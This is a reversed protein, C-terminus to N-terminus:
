RAERVSEFKVPQVYAPSLGFNAIAAEAVISGPPGDHRFRATGTQNRPLGLALSNVGVTQGSPVTVSTSSVQAGSPSLFTLSGTVSANTTNQFSYFTDFSGNTSWAPSYLATDALGLTYAVAAGSNVLRARFTRSAGSATFSVRAAGAGPAPDIGTTNRVALSSNGSCGDDGSFVTLNGPPSSGGTTNKLELSYSDGLKLVFQFWATSSAAITTPTVRGDAVVVRQGGCVVDDVDTASNNGPVPDVLGSPVSVTATNSLLSSPPNAVVSATATFTV